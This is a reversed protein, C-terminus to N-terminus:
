RRPAFKAPQQATMVSLEELLIGRQKAWQRLQALVAAKQTEWSNRDWRFVVVAPDDPRSGPRLLLRLWLRPSIAIGHPGTHLSYSFAAVKRGGASLLAGMLQGRWTSPNLAEPAVVIYQLRPNEVVQWLDDVSVTPREAVLGVLGVWDALLSGKAAEVSVFQAAKRCAMAYPNIPTSFTDLALFGGATLLLGTGLLWSLRGGRGGVVWAAPMVGLAAIPLLHRAELYHKHYCWFFTILLYFVAFYRCFRDTPRGLQRLMVIGILAPIGLLYGHADALEQGFHSVTWSLQRTQHSLNSERYTFLEALFKQERGLNVAHCPYRPPQDQLAEQRMEELEFLSSAHTTAPIPGLEAPWNPFPAKGIVDQLISNRLEAWNTPGLLLWYPGYASLIGAIWLGLTTSVSPERTLVTKKYVDLHATRDSCRDFTEARSALLFKSPLEGPVWLNFKRVPFGAASFRRFARILFYFTTFALFILMGRHTMAALGGALGAAFLWVAPLLLGPGSGPDM